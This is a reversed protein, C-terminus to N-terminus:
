SIKTYTIGNIVVHEKDTFSYSYTQVTPTAYLSWSVNDTIANGTAEKYWTFTIDSDSRDYKFKGEFSSNTSVYYIIVDLGDFKFFRETGSNSKWIGDFPSVTKGGVITKKNTCSSFVLGAASIFFALLAFALFKKM